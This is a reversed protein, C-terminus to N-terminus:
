CFVPKYIDSIFWNLYTGTTQANCHLLPDFLVLLALPLIKEISWFGTQRKQTTADPSFVLAWTRESLIQGCIDEPPFKLPDCSNLSDIVPQESDCTKRRTLTWMSRVVERRKWVSFFQKPHFIFLDLCSTSIWIQVQPVKESKLFPKKPSQAFCPHCRRRGEFLIM